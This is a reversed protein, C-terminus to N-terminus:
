AARSYENILGHLRQRRVVLGADPIPQPEPPRLGLARHPRARNYHDFYEHLVRILHREGLIILWDLCERRLSGLLRECAANTRPSRFPTRAIRIGAASFVADFDSSYKSDRDRILVKIPIKLEELEWTVNRAHQAVWSDPQATANCFIVRRFSIELFVLVYLVGLRVSGVTLFHCALVARAHARLFQSWIPGTRRPAPGLRHRRLIKRITSNSVRYGLKLM